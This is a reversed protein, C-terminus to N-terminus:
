FKKTVTGIIQQGAGYVCGFNGACRAVYKKDLINSGNVAFRWGPLDYHIMADFLMATGAYIM